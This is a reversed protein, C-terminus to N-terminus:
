PRPQLELFAQETAGASAVWLAGNNDTFLSFGTSATGPKVADILVAGSKELHDSKSQYGQAYAPAVPGSDFGKGLVWGPQGRTPAVAALSSIGSTDVAVLAVAPILASGLAEAKSLGYIEDSHAGGIVFAAVFVNGAQDSAVPGSGGTWSLLKRSAM